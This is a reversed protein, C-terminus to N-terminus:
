IGLHAIFDKWWIANAIELSVIQLNKYTIVQAINDIILSYTFVWCIKM